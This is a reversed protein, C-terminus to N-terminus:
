QPPRGNEIHQCLRADAANIQSRRRESRRDEAALYRLTTELSSHGLDRQITRVDAGSRHQFTAWTKRLTHLIWRRCVPHTSCSVRKREYTGLCKGCNLGARLAVRKVIRLLHKDPNGVTNPFILGNGPHRLHRAGLREALRDSIGVIREETDKVEWGFQEPKSYTKVERNSYDFDHWEIHAGEGTASVMALLFNSSTQRTRMRSSSFDRLIANTLAFSKKEEFKPWDSQKVLNTQGCENLFSVINNFHNWVTRQGIYKGFRTKQRRLFVKFRKLDDGDIEDIRTKPTCSQLFLKLAQSYARLTRKRWNKEAAKGTSLYEDVIVDLTQPDNRKLKLKPRPKVVEGKLLAVEKEMAALTGEGHSKCNNLTEWKGAFRLVFITHQPYIVNRKAKKYKQTGHERTYLTVKIKKVSM